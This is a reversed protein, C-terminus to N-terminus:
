ELEDTQDRETAFITVLSLSSSETTILLLPHQQTSYSLMSNHHTPSSATTILLLLHQQSSSSLFSSHQLPLSSTATILLPHQKSSYSLM